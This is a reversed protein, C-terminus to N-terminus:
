QGDMKWTYHSDCKTLNNTLEIVKRDADTLEM